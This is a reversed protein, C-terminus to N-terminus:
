RRAFVRGCLVSNVDDPAQVPPTIRPLFTGVYRIDAPEPSPMVRPLFAGVYRIDAPVQAPQVQRGFVGLATAATQEELEGPTPAVTGGVRDFLSELYLSWPRAIKARLKGTQDTTIECLDIRPPPPILHTM